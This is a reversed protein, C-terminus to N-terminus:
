GLEAARKALFWEISEPDGSTRYTSGDDMTVTREIFILALCSDDERLHAALARLGAPTSPATAVLAKAAAVEARLAAEIASSADGILGAEELAILRDVEAVAAVNAAIAAFIPDVPLALSPVAALALATAGAVGAAMASLVARRNTTSQDNAKPM